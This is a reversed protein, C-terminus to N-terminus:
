LDYSPILGRTWVSMSGHADCLLKRFVLSLGDLAGGVFTLGVQLCTLLFFLLLLVDVVGVLEVEVGLEASWM